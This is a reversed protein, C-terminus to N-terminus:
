ESEEGQEQARLHAPKAILTKTTGGDVVEVRYAEGQSGVVTGTHGDFRPHYQGDPTSPDIKLHVQQGTEFAEVVQNPPSTGRQRADNQLKHRTGQRPGNSNPM